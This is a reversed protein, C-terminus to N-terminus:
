ASPTSSVGVQDDTVAPGPVETGVIAPLAAPEPSSDNGFVGTALAVVAALSLVVVGGVSLVVGSHTGAAGRGPLLATLSLGHGRLHAPRAPRGHVPSEPSADWPRPIWGGGGDHAPGPTM